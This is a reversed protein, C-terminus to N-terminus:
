NIAVNNRFRRREAEERRMSETLEEDGQWNPDVMKCYEDAKYYFNEMRQTELEHYVRQVTAVQGDCQTKSHKAAMVEYELRAITVLHDTIVNEKETLRLRTEELELMTKNMLAEIVKSQFKQEVFVKEFTEEIKKRNEVEFSKMHELMECNGFAENSRCYGCKATVVSSMTSLANPDVFDDDICINESLYVHHLNGLRVFAGGNLQKLNNRDSCHFTIM